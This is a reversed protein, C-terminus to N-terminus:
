QQRWQRHSVEGVDHSSVLFFFSKSFIRRLAHPHYRSFTIVKVSMRRGNHHQLSCKIRTTNCHAINGLYESLKKVTSRCTASSSPVDCNMINHSPFRLITVVKGNLELEVINSVIGEQSMGDYAVPAHLTIRSLLTWKHWSMKSVAFSHELASYFHFM